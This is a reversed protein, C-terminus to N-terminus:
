WHNKIERQLNNQRSLYLNWTNKFIVCFGVVVDTVLQFGGGFSSFYRIRLLLIDVYVFIFNRIKIAIRAVTFAIDIGGCGLVSTSNSHGFPVSICLYAKAGLVPTRLM